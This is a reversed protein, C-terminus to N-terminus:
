LSSSREPFIIKSRSSEFSSCEWFSIQGQSKSFFMGPVNRSTLKDLADFFMGPIHRSSLKDLRRLVNRSPGVFQTQRYGGGTNIGPPPTTSNQPPNTKTRQRRKRLPLNSSFHNGFSAIPQKTSAPHLHRRRHRYAVSRDQSFHRSSRREHCFRRGDLYKKPAEAVARADLDELNQLHDQAVTAKAITRTDLAKFSKTVRDTRTVKGAQM